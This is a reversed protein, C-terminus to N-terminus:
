EPADGLTDSSARARKLSTRAAALVTVRTAGASRLARAAATATAGSTVVDDVVVVHGRSGPVTAAICDFAPGTRREALTRGTQARGPRRVLLAQARVDLQAGVGRALLEAQDFGRRRRREAVTPAWTVADAPPEAALLSAMAAALRPLLTRLNRYKLRAVLERGAGDYDLFALCADVGPPTPLHPAPRLAAACPPCLARGKRLCVPCTAVLLM